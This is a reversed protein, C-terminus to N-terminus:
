PGDLDPGTPPTPPTPPSPSARIDPLEDLHLAALAALTVPAETGDIGRVRPRLDRALDAAPRALAAALGDADVHLWGFRPDGVTATDGHWTVTVTAPPQAPERWAREPPARGADRGGARAGSDINSQWVQAALAAQAATYAASVTPYPGHVVITHGQTAHLYGWWDHVHGDTPGLPRQNGAAYPNSPPLQPRSVARFGVVDGIDTVEPLQLGRGHPPRSWELHTWGSPDRSEPWFTAAYVTSGPPPRFPFDLLVGSPHLRAVRLRPELLVDRSDM